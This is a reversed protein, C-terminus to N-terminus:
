APPRTPPIQQDNKYNAILSMRSYSNSCAAALLSSAIPTLGLQRLLHRRDSGINRKAHTLREIGKLALRYDRTTKIPKIEM